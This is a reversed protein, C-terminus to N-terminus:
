PAAGITTSPSASTTPPQDSGDFWPKIISEPNILGDTIGNFVQRAFRMAQAKDKATAGVSGDGLTGNTKHLSVHWSKITEFVDVSYGTPHNLRFVTIPGSEITEFNM